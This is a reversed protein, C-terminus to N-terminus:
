SQLQTRKLGNLIFNARQNQTEIFQFVISLLRANENKVKQQQFYCILYSRVSKLHLNEPSFHLDFPYLTILCWPWLYLNSEKVERRPILVKLDELNSPVTSIM